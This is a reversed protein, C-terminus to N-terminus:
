NTVVTWGTPIRDSGFEQPLTEPCIFTGSSSVDIVWFRTANNEPDWVSFNVNINNLKNCNSFMHM